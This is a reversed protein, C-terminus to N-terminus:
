AALKAGVVDMSFNGGCLPDTLVLTKVDNDVRWMVNGPHIDYTGNIESQTDRVVEFLNIADDGTCDFERKITSLESHRFAQMKGNNRSRFETQEDDTLPELREIKACYTGGIRTITDINPFNKSTGNLKVNVAYAFWGDLSDSNCNVKYVWGDPALFASSWCGEGLYTFGQEKLRDACIQVSTHMRGHGYYRVESFYWAIQKTVDVGPKNLGQLMDNALQNYIKKFKETKLKRKRDAEQRYAEREALLRQEEAHMRKVQEPDVPQVMAKWNEWLGNGFGVHDVDHLKVHQEFNSTPIPGRSRGHILGKLAPHGYGIGPKPKQADKWFAKLAEVPNPKKVKDRMDIFRQVGPDIIVKNLLAAGVGFKVGRDINAGNRDKLKILKHAANREVGAPVFWPEPKIVIGEFKPMADFWNCAKIALKDHDRLGRGFQQNLQWKDLIDHMPAIHDVVNLGINRLADLGQVNGIGRPGFDHVKFDAMLKDQWQHEAALIQDLNVKPAPLLKIENHM